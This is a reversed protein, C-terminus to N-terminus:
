VYNCVEDDPNDWFDTSSMSASQVDSIAENDSKTFGLSFKQFLIFEQLKEIVFDPLTDIENKVYDRNSM